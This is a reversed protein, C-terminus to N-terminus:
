TTQLCLARLQTLSVTISFIGLAEPAGSPQIAIPHLSRPLHCARPICPLHVYLVASIVIITEGSPAALSLATAAAPPFKLPNAFVLPGGLGCRGDELGSAPCDSHWPFTTTSQGQLTFVLM